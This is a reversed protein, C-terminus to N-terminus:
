KEAASHFHFVSHRFPPFSCLNPCAALTSYSYNKNLQIDFTQWDPLLPFSGRQTKGVQRQKCQRHKRQTDHDPKPELKRGFSSLTVAAGLTSTMSSYWDLLWTQRQRKEFDWEKGNFFGQIGPPGVTVPSHPTFLIIAVTHLNLAVQLRAKFVLVLDVIM